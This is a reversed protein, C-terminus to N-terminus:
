IRKIKKARQFYNLFIQLVSYNRYDYMLKNTNELDLYAIINNKNGYKKFKEYKDIYFIIYEEDLEYFSKM